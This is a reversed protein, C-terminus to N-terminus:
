NLESKPIPEVDFNVLHNALHITTTSCAGDCGTQVAFVGAIPDDGVFVELMGSHMRRITLPKLESPM